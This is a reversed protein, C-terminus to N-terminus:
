SQSEHLTPRLRNTFLRRGYTAQVRESLSFYAIGLALFVLSPVVWRLASWFLVPFLFRFPVHQSFGLLVLGSINLVTVVGDLVFYIRLLSVAVPERMCLTVGVVVGFALGLLRLGDVPRL